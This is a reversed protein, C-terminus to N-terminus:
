SFNISLFRGLKEMTPHKRAQFKEGFEAIDLLKDEFAALDFVM